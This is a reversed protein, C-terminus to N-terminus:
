TAAQEYDEPLVRGYLYLDGLRNQARPDGAEALPRVLRLVTAYDNKFIADTSDEFAGAEAGSTDAIALAITAAILLLRM